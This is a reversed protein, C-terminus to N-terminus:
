WITRCRVRILFSHMCDKLGVKDRSARMGVQEVPAAPTPKCALGQRVVLPGRDLPMDALEIPQALVERDQVPLDCRARDVVRRDPSQHRDRTILRVTAAPSIAAIPLM